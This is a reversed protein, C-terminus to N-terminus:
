ADVTQRVFSTIETGDTKGTAYDYAMQELKSGLNLRQAIWQADDPNPCWCIANETPGPRVLHTEEQRREDKWLEGMCDYHCQDVFRGQQWTRIENKSM